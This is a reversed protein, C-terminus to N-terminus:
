RVPGLKLLELFRGVKVIQIGEFSGLPLVHRADGSVIFDSKAALACELIRNDPPDSTIVDLTQTPSVHQTYGRIDQEAERLEPVNWQFKDRLVRLTEILIAESIDLRFEGEAALDLFQRPLGGFEFGSVYINTDATVGPV